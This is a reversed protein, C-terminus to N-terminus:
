IPEMNNLYNSLEENKSSFKEKINKLTESNFNIIKEKKESENKKQEIQVKLIENKKNIVEIEKEVNKVKNELKKKEDFIENEKMELSDWQENNVNNKMLDKLNKKKGEFIKMEKEQQKELELLKNKLIKNEQTVEKIQTEENMNEYIKLAMQTTESIVSSTFNSFMNSYTEENVNLNENQNETEEDINGHVLWSIGKKLPTNELSSCTLVMFKRQKDKLHEEIDLNKIFEEKKQEKILDFKNLLILYSIQKEKTKEFCQHLIEKTELLRKEDSADIVYVIGNVEYVELYDDWVIRSEKSGGFDFLVLKKGEYEFEHKVPHLTPAPSETLKEHELTSILTTKGSNDLGYFLLNVTPESFYSVVNQAYGFWNSM